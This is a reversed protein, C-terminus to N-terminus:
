TAGGHLKKGDTSTGVTTRLRRSQTAATHAAASKPAPQLPECATLALPSVGSTATPGITEADSAATARSASGDVSTGDDAVTEGDDALTEGDAVAEGDSPAV